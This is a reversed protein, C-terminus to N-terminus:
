NLILYAEKRAEKLAAPSLMNFLLLANNHKNKNYLLDHFYHHILICFCEDPSVVAFGSTGNEFEVYEYVWKYYQAVAMAYLEGGGYALNLRDYNLMADNVARSKYADIFSNLVQPIKEINEMEINFNADKLLTVCDSALRSLEDMEEISAKRKLKLVNM